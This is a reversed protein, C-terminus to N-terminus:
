NQLITVIMHYNLFLVEVRQRENNAAVSLFHIYMDMKDSPNCFSSVRLSIIHYEYLESYEHQDFSPLPLLISM